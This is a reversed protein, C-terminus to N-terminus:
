LISDCESHFYLLKTTISCGGQRRGHIDHMKIRLQRLVSVIYTVSESGVSYGLFRNVRGLECNNALTVNSDGTRRLLYVVISPVLSVLTNDNM